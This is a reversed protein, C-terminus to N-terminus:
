AVQLLLMKQRDEEGSEQRAEECSEKGSEQGRYTRRLPKAIGGSSM